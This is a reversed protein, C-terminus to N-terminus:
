TTWTNYPTTACRMWMCVISKREKGREEKMDSKKESRGQMAGERSKKSETTRVEEEKRKDVTLEASRPTVEFRRGRGMKVHEVDM